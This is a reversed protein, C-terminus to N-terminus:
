GKYGTVFRSTSAPFDRPTTTWRNKIRRGFRNCLVVKQTAVLVDAPRKTPQNSEAKGNTNAAHLNPLNTKATGYGFPLIMAM